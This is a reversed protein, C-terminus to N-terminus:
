RLLPVLREEVIGPLLTSRVVLLHDKRDASQLAEGISRIVREVSATSVSGDEGSPTGVAVLSMESARVAEAASLAARLRGARVQEEVLEALGPEVIPVIGANLEAVKSADVDVGIVSHGDRCLCAATVCGVYGLGFVAIAAM